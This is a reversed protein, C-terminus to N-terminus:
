ATATALVREDTPVPALEGTRHLLVFRTVYVMTLTAGVIHVAVLGVPVGTFYQTYGVVGQLVLVVLLHRGGRQVAEPARERRAMWFWAMLAALLIWVSVGHLRAVDPMHFDLRRVREDGAHPGSGTVVTGIFLVLCAAAFVVFSFRRLDSSTRAVRIRSTEGARLHLLTANWVLVMSLLFHVMVAQPKLHLLVVFAGVIIQALVGSVLGLSWLTLDRRRPVRVLSGLVALIVAICVVGTFVRNAFEIMPHYSFEAHFQNEYCTPWDPCGLGSGTLRVAAGSVVIVALMVLAAM